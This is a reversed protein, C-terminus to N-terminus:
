VDGSVRLPDRLQIVCFCLLTEHNDTDRAYSFCSLGHGTMSKRHVHCLCDHSMTTNKHSEAAHDAERSRRRTLPSTGYARSM